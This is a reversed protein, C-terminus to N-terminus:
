ASWLLWAMMGLLLLEGGSLNSKVKQEMKHIFVVITFAALLAIARLM